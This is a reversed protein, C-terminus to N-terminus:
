RCGKAHEFIEPRLISALRLTFYGWHGGPASAVRLPELYAQARFVLLPIDADFCEQLGLVFLGM